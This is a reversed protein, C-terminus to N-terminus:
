IDSYEDRLLRFFSRSPTARAIQEAERTGLATALHALSVQLFRETEARDRFETLWPRIAPALRSELELITEATRSLDAIDSGALATDTKLLMAVRGILRTRSEQFSLLFRHRAAPTDRCEGFREFELWNEIHGIGSRYVFREERIVGDIREAVRTLPAGPFPKLENVRSSSELDIRFRRLSLALAALHYYSRVRDDDGVFPNNMLFFCRSAMGEAEIATLVAQIEAFSYAPHAADGELALRLTDTKLLRISDDTFSDIGIVIEDIGLSRYAKVLDHRVTGQSGPASRRLFGALGSHRVYFEFWPRLGESVIGAALRVIREPDRNFYSDLFFVDIFEGAQLVAIEKIRKLLDIVVEPNLATFPQFGGSCCISCRNGCGRSSLILYSLRAPTDRRPIFYGRFFKDYAPSYIRRLTVPDFRLTNLGAQTLLARRDLRSLAAAERGIRQAVGPYRFVDEARFPGAGLDEIYSVLRGGQEDGLMLVDAAEGGGAEPDIAPGLGTAILTTGPTPPGSFRMPLEYPPEFYSAADANATRYIWINASASDVVPVGNALFEELTTAALLGEEPEASISNLGQVHVGRCTPMHGELTDAEKERIETTAVTRLMGSLIAGPPDDLADARVILKAYRAEAAFIFVWGATEVVAARGGPASIWGSFDGDVSIVIDLRADDPLVRGLAFGRVAKRALRVAQPLSVERGPTRLLIRYPIDSTPPNTQFALRCEMSLQRVLRRTLLLTRSIALGLNDLHEGFDGRDTVGRLSIFGIGADTFLRALHYDEMELIDADPHKEQLCERDAKSGVFSRVTLTTGERLRIHHPASRWLADLQPIQPIDFRGTEYIAQRTVLVDGMELDDSFAMCSGLAIIYGPQVAAIYERVVRALLDPNDGFPLRLMTVEREDLTGLYVPSQSGPLRKEARVSMRRLIAKQENGDFCVLHVTGEAEDLRTAARQASPAGISRDALRPGRASEASIGGRSRDVPEDFKM